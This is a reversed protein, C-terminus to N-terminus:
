FNKDIFSNILRAIIIQESLKLNFSSPLWILKNMLIKSNKLDRFSKKYINMSNIPSWFYRCNVGNDKLFKFLKAAKTCYLDVWLPLEGIGTNFGILRLNDNKKILKKYNQYNKKLQVARRHFDELQSIGLGAQLDTFKFNYGKWSYINKTDISRSRGQDKLQRIKNYLNKNNTVVLGGQGTTIIKNPALSFCGCDGFTGLSKNHNKSGLAEAADEIIKIKRSRAFKLLEKINSGRGSIHVPIIAKTNKTVKKELSKIDILLNKLSVDALVVKAGTMNVANATAPFTINPIIVEDEKKINLAKLSLYLASTGNTIAVVYKVKILNKIKQELVKTLFGENPFNRQLSKKIIKITGQINIKPQTFKIIKSM